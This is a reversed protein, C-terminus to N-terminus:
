FTFLTPDPAALSSDFASGATQMRRQADERLQRLRQAIAEPLIESLATPEGDAPARFPPRLREILEGRALSINNMGQTSVGHRWDQSLSFGVTLPRQILRSIEKFLWGDVSKRRGSLPLPRILETRVAMNLATPYGKALEHDYISLTNTPMNYFAGLSSQVWEYNQLLEHTQALRKPPSYDDGAVLLYGFSDAEQAIMQWKDALAVWQNLSIYTIPTRCGVKALRSEYARLAEEGLHQFSEEVAILEWEFNIGEQRCLSELALWGIHEVRYLPLACTLAVTM